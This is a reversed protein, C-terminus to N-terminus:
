PRVQVRQSHSPRNSKSFSLHIILKISIIRISLFKQNNSIQDLFSISNNRKKKSRRTKLIQKLGHLKRNTLNPLVLPSKKQSM